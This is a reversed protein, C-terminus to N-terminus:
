FSNVRIEIENVGPNLRISGFSLNVAEGNVTVVDEPAFGAEFEGVMNAPIEIIYKSLRNNVRQYAGKIQGKLTPMVISSNKLTSM